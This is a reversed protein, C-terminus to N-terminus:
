GDVPFRPSPRGREVALRRIEEAAARGKDTVDGAPSIFGEGQLRELAPPDDHMQPGRLTRSMLLKRDNLYLPIPRRHKLDGM